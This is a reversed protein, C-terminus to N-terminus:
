DKAKYIGWGYAFVALIFAVAMIYSYVDQQTPIFQAGSIIAVLIALLGVSASIIWQKNKSHIARIIFVLAGILLLAGLIIHLVLAMQSKAFEWLISQSKTDPFQVFLNVAMGFLYQFILFGLMVHSQIKLPDRKM